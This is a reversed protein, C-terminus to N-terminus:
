TEDIPALELQGEVPAPTEDEGREAQAARAITALFERPAKEGLAIRHGLRWHKVMKPVYTELLRHEVAEMEECAAARAANGWRSGCSCLVIASARPPPM